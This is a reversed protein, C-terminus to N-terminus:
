PDHWAMAMFVRTFSLLEACDVEWDGAVGSGLCLEVSGHCQQMREPKGWGDFRKV